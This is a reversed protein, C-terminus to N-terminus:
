RKLTTDINRWATMDASMDMTKDDTWDTDQKCKNLSSIDVKRDMIEQQQDVKRQDLKDIDGDATGQISNEAKSYM